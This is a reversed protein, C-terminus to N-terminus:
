AIETNISLEYSKCMVNIVHDYSTIRYHKPMPDGLDKIKAFDILWASERVEEFCSKGVDPALDALILEFGKVGGFTLSYDIMGEIRRSGLHGNFSGTIAADFPNPFQITDVFIADRGRLVGVPTEIAIYTEMAIGKEM